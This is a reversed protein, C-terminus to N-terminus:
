LGEIEPLGQGEIYLAGYCEQRIIEMLGFDGDLTSQLQGEITYINDVLLSTEGKWSTVDAKLGKIGGAVADEWSTKEAALKKVEDELPGLQKLHEQHTADAQARRQAEQLKEVRETLAANTEEIKSKEARPFVGDSWRL